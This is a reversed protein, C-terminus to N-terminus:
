IVEMLIACSLVSRDKTDIKIYDTICICIYTYIGKKHMGSLAFEADLNSSRTYGNIEVMLVSEDRLSGGVEISLSIHRM